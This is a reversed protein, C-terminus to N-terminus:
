WESTLRRKRWHGFHLHSSSPTPRNTYAKEEKGISRKGRRISFLWVTFRVIEVRRDGFFEEFPMFRSRTVRMNKRGTGFSCVKCVSKPSPVITPAYFANPRNTLIRTRNRYHGFLIAWSQEVSQGWQGFYYPRTTISDDVKSSRQGGSFGVTVRTRVGHRGLVFLFCYNLRVHTKQIKVRLTHTWTANERKTRNTKSVGDLRSTRSRRQCFPM